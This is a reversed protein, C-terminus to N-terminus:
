RLVNYNRGTLCRKLVTSRDADKGARFGVIGMSAREAAVGMTNGAMRAMSTHDQNAVVACEAYDKDYKEKDVRTIDVLDFGQIPAEAVAPEMSSCGAFVLSLCALLLTRRHTMHPASTAQTMFM